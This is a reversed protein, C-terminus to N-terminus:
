QEDRARKFTADNWPQWDVATDAYSRLFASSSAALRANTAFAFPNALLSGCVLLLVPRVKLLPTRM